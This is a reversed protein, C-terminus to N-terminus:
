YLVAYDEFEEAGVYADTIILVVLFLSLFAVKILQTSSNVLYGAFSLEGLVPNAGCYVFVCWACYIFGVSFLYHRLKFSGGPRLYLAVFGAAGIFALALLFFASIANVVVNQIYMLLVLQFVGIVLALLCINKGLRMSGGRNVGLLTAFILLITCVEIGNWFTLNGSSEFFGVSYFFIPGIGINHYHPRGLMGAPIKSVAAGAVFINAWPDSLGM